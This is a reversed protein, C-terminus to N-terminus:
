AQRARASTDIGRLADEIPRFNGAELRATEIWILLIHEQVLLVERKLKDLSSDSHTFNNYPDIAIAKYPGSGQPILFDIRTSGTKTFIGLAPISVQYFFSRGLVPPNPGIRKWHKVTTLYWYVVWEALSNVFWAPKPPYPTLSKETVRDRKPLAARPAPPANRPPNGPLAPLSPLRFPNAPM